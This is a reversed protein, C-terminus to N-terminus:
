NRLIEGGKKYYFEFLFKFTEKDFSAEPPNGNLLLIIEKIRDDMWKRIADNSKNTGELHNFVKTLLSYIAQDTLDSNFNNLATICDTILESSSSTLDGAPLESLLIMLRYLAKLCVIIKRSNKPYTSLILKLKKIYEEFIVKAEPSYDSSIINDIAPNEDSDGTNSNRKKERIRKKKLDRCINTVVANLYTSFKSEHKFLRLIKDEKELLYLYVIQLLEEKDEFNYYGKGILQCWIITEIMKKYPLFYDGKPM